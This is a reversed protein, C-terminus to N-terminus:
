QPLYFVVVMDDKRRAMVQPGSSSTDYYYMRLQLNMYLLRDDGQCGCLFSPCGIIYWCFTYYIQAFSNHSFLCVEVLTCHTGWFINYYVLSWCDVTIIASFRLWVKIISHLHLPFIQPCKVHEHFGSAEVVIKALLEPTAKTTTPTWMFNCEETCKRWITVYECTM